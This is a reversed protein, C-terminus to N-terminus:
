IHVTMLLLFLSYYEVSKYRLLFCSSFRLRGISKVIKKKYRGNLLIFFFVSPTHQHQEIKTITFFVIYIVDNTYAKKKSNNNNNYSMSKERKKERHTHTHQNKNKFNTYLNFFKLYIYSSSIIHNANLLQILQTSCFKGSAQVFLKM